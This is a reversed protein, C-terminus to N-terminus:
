TAGCHRVLKFTAWGEGENFPQIQNSKGPNVQIGLDLPVIAVRTPVTRQARVAALCLTLRRLSGCPGM